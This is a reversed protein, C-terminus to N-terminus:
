GWLGPLLHYKRSAPLPCALSPFAASSARGASTASGSCGSGVSCATSSPASCSRRPSPLPARCRAACVPPSPDPGPLRRPPRCWLAPGAHLLRTGGVPPAPPAPPAPLPAHGPTEARQQAVLQGPAAWLLQPAEQCRPRSGTWPQLHYAILGVQQAWGLRRWTLVTGWAPLDKGTRCPCLKFVSGDLVPSGPSSPSPDNPQDESGLPVPSM